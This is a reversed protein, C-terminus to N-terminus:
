SIRLGGESAITGHFHISSGNSELSNTLHVVVEDGWYAEITPGPISGNIAQAYRSYGDPAVEVGTIEFWYEVTRGTYPAESYYDTDISFRDCWTSRDSATNCQEATSTQSYASNNLSVAKEHTAYSNTPLRDHGRSPLHSPGHVTKHCVAVIAFLVTTCWLSHRFM